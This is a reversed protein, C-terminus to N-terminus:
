KGLMMLGLAAMSSFVELSTSLVAEDVAATEVDPIRGGDANFLELRFELCIQWLTKM